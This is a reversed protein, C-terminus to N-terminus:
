KSLTFVAFVILITGNHKKFVIILCFQYGRCNIFFFFFEKESLSLLVFNIPVFVSVISSLNM